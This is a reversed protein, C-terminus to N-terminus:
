VGKIIDDILKQYLNTQAFIEVKLMIPIGTNIENMIKIDTISLLVEVIAGKICCGNKVYWAIDKKLSDLVRHLFYKSDDQTTLKELNHHEFDADEDGVLQRFHSSTTKTWYNDRKILKPECIFKRGYGNYSIYRTKISMLTQYSYFLERIWPSQPTSIVASNRHINLPIM